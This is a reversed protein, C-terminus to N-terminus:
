VSAPLDLFPKIIKKLTELKKNLLVASDAEAIFRLYPETNSPRINFWWHEFDVRYGDFDFSATPKETKCYYDRVADMAEQKKTIRYNIEGSNAWRDTIKDVLMSVTVNEKKFKAFVNLLILAAIFGSDSYFFQSFYYHGALEGGFLGKIERLKLAAYARGVRWMHTKYGEKELYEKVARSTRIDHLVLRNEGAGFYHGMAAILLDPSIFRGLDDVFMVRDADGDFIVGVDLKNKKVLTILQAVNELELPNPEHNPFTGDPEENIYMPKDGLVQRVFYGSCGNSCDVGINLNSFDSKFTSLFQFYDTQLETEISFISGRTSSVNIEGENVLSELKELGTDFGVPLADERSIKLGNYKTPNHSATIMVSANFKFHATGYYVMPTTCLGVDYVNAGADLIGNCLAEFLAPSSTRMDRGVLVKHTNLLSPVFYGIKYVIEETLDKGYIGRIDYAKFISM